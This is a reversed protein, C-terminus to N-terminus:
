KLVEVRRSRIGRDLPVSSVVCIQSGEVRVKGRTLRRIVLNPVGEVILSGPVVM